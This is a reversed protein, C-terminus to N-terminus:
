LDIRGQPTVKKLDMVLRYHPSFKERYLKSHSVVPWGNSEMEATFSRYDGDISMRPKKREAMVGVVGWARIFQEHLNVENSPYYVPFERATRLFEDLLAQPDGGSEYYKRLHVRALPPTIGPIELNEIMPIIRGENAKVYDWEDWFRDSADKKDQVAHGAGHFSQYLMKYVDAYEVCFASKLVFRSVKKHFDEAM